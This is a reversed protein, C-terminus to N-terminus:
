AVLEKEVATSFTSSVCFQKTLIVHVQRIPASGCLSSFITFPLQSILSFNLNIGPTQLARTDLGIRTGIRSCSNWYHLYQFDLTSSHSGQPGHFWQGNGAFDPNDQRSGVSDM